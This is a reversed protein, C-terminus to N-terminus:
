ESLHTREVLSLQAVTDFNENECYVGFVDSAHCRTEKKERCWNDSRGITDFFASVDLTPCIIASVLDGLAVRRAAAM